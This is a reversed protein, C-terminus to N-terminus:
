WVGGGTILVCLFCVLRMRGWVGSNCDQGSAWLHVHGESCSSSASIRGECIWFSLCKLFMIYNVPFVSISFGTWLLSSDNDLRPKEMCLFSPLSYSFYKLSSLYHGKIELGKGDFNHVHIWGTLMVDRGKNVRHATFNETGQTCQCQNMTKITFLSSTYIYSVSGSDLCHFLPTSDM